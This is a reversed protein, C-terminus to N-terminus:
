DTKKEKLKVSKKKKGPMPTPAEDEDDEFGGIEEALEKVERELQELERQLKMEEFDPRTASPLMYVLAILGVWV